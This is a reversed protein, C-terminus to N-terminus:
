KHGGKQKPNGLHVEDGDKLIYDKSTEESLPNWNEDGQSKVSVIKGRGVEAATAGQTLELPKREIGEQVVIRITEITM